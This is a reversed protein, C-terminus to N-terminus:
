TRRNHSHWAQWLRASFFASCHILCSKRSSYWIGYTQSLCIGLERASCNMGCSEVGRLKSKKIKFDGPLVAGEMAVIVHQHAAVNPAGCVIQLPVPDGQDDVNHPGVDVMTVKMHDSDPHPVCSLIYGTVVHDLSAGSRFLM